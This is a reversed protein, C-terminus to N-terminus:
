RPALTRAVCIASVETAGARKLVRAAEELTSGTTVVDDVLWIRAPLAQRSAFAGSVNRRRESRDLGTQSPTDRTRRLATPAFRAGVSRAVERALLAAPNFGRHLLRARHLPIPVVWDPRGPAREASRRALERAVITARPDLGAIGRQPYKFRRVWLETDGAYACAATCAHLPSRGARCSGCLGGAEPLSVEQCLSCADHALAPLQQLCSACLGREGEALAKRCGACRWPLALELLGRLWASM